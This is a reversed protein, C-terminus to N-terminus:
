PISLTDLTESLKKLALTSGFVPISEESSIYDVTRAIRPLGSPKKMTSLFERLAANMGQEHFLVRNPRLHEPLAEIYNKVKEENEKDFFCIGLNLPVVHLPSKPNKGPGIIRWESSTWKLDKRYPLNTYAYNTLLAEAPYLVGGTVGESFQSYFQNIEKNEDECTFNIQRGHDRSIEFGGLLADGGVGNAIHGKKLSVEPFAHLFYRGSGQTEMNKTYEELSLDKLSDSDWLTEHEQEITSRNMEILQDKTISADEVGREARLPANRIRSEIGEVANKAVISIAEVKEMASFLEERSELLSAKEENDGAARLSADITELASNFVNFSESHLYRDFQTADKGGYGILNIARYPNELLLNEAEIQIRELTKITTSVLTELSTDRAEQTSETQPKPPRFISEM